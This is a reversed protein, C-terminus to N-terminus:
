HSSAEELFSGREESTHSGRTNKGVTKISSKRVCFVGSTIIHTILHFVRSEEFATM